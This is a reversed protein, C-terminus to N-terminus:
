VFPLRAQSNDRVWQVIDEEGIAGAALELIVDRAENNSATLEFDNQLLFLAMAALATRKNGDTFAHFEKAVAFALAGALAQIDRYSVEYAFKQQPYAAISCVKTFDFGLPGGFRDLLEDHLDLLTQETIFLPKPAQAV